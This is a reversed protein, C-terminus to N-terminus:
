QFGLTGGRQKRLLKEHIRDVLDDEDTTGQGARVTVTVERGDLDDLIRKLPSDTEPM